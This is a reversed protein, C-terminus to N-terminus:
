VTKGAHNLGMNRMLVRRAEELSDVFHVNNLASEDIIRFGKAISGILANTSIIAIPGKNDAGMELLKKAKERTGASFVSGGPISIGNSVDVIAGVVYDRQATMNKITDLTAFMEEWTWEPELICLMITQEDNDWYLEIGM